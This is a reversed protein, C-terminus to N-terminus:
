LVPFGTMREIEKIIKDFIKKLEPQNRFSKSVILSTRLETHDAENDLLAQLYKVADSFNKKNYLEVLDYHIERLRELKNM